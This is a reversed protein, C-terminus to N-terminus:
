PVPVHQGEQAPLEPVEQVPQVVQVLIELEGVGPVEHGVTKTRDTCVYAKSDLLQTIHYSIICSKIGSFNYKQFYYLFYSNKFVM